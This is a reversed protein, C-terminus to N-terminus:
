SSNFNLWIRFIIMAFRLPPPLLATALAASIQAILIPICNPATKLAQVIGEDTFLERGVVRIIGIWDRAPLNCVGVGSNVYCSPHSDFANKRLEACSKDCQKLPSVLARQLCNMTAYVWSQGTNSFLYLSTVFKNCFRSGYNIAYGNPGCSRKREMCSTYFLCTRMPPNMCDSQCMPDSACSVCDDCQECVENVIRDVTVSSQYLDDGVNAVGVDIRILEPTGTLPLTLTFWDTEGSAFDFAGLGLGNMSQSAIRFQGSESRIVVSFYDNYQSGFFGGPVESTIFKYRVYIATSNAESTFYRSTVRLGEGLTAISFGPVNLRNNYSSYIAHTNSFSINQPNKEDLIVNKALSTTNQLPMLVVTSGATSPATGLIGVQNDTTRATISISRLPVNTFIITGNADTTGSQSVSPYDTLNATVTVGSAASGNSFILNVPMSINGFYLDFTEFIPFGNIDLAFLSLLVNESQFGDM